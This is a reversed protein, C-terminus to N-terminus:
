GSQNKKLFIYLLLRNSLTCITRGSTKQLRKVARVAFLSFAIFSGKARLLTASLMQETERRGLAGLAAAPARPPPSGHAHVGVVVDQVVALATLLLLQRHLPAAVEQAGLPFSAVPRLYSSTVPSPEGQQDEVGLPQHRCLPPEQGQEDRTNQKHGPARHCRTEQLLDGKPSSPVPLLTVPRTVVPWTAMERGAFGCPTLEEGIRCYNRGPKEVTGRCSQFSFYKQGRKGKLNDEHARAAGATAPPCSKARSIDREARERSNIVM